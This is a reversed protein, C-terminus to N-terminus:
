RVRGERWYGLFGHQGDLFLHLVAISLSVCRFFRFVFGKARRFTSEKIFPFVEAASGVRLRPPHSEIEVVAHLVWGFWPNSESLETELRSHFAKL